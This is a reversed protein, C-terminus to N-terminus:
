GELAKWTLIDWIDSVDGALTQLDLELNLLNDKTAYQNLVTPLDKIQDSKISILRLEGNINVEFDTTTSTIYNKQAGDEIGNLKNLFETTFNNESLGDVNNANQSIWEDLGQVNAANVKGSIQLGNDGLILADLKERDSPSVLTYGTQADVKNNLISQLDTIKSISLDKLNLTGSADVSFHTEDVSKILSEELSALKEGEELTMLRANDDKNVKKDLEESFKEATVYNDLNVEWSGVKEILKTEIGEHDTLIIVMYEDYKDSDNELGTPVMYIFQDADSNNAMYAEIDDTSEVIKRKLHAAAAIKEDTETKTYADIPKEWKLGNETKTFFSGTEAETYGRLTLRGNEDLEFQSADLVLDSGGEDDSSAVASLTNNPQIIYFSALGNEVVVLTQGYYYVSETSGAEAAQAAARVAEDYSEFYSRADLPFASLPNFSVTFDLKGFELSM